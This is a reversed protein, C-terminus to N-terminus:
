YKPDVDSAAEVNMQSSRTALFYFILGRLKGCGRLLVNKCSSSRVVVHIYVCTCVCLCVCSYAHSFTINIISEHVAFVAFSSILRSSVFGSYLLTCQTVTASVKDQAIHVIHLANYLQSDYSSLVVVCVHDDDDDDDNDNDDHRFM